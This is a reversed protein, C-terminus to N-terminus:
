VSNPTNVSFMHLSQAVEEQSTTPNREERKISSCSSSVTQGSESDEITGLPSDLYKLVKYSKDLVSILRLSRAQARESTHCSASQKCLVSSGVPACPM